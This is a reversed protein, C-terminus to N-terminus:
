VRNGHSAIQIVRQEYVGPGEPTINLITGINGVLQYLDTTKECFLANLGPLPGTLIDATSGPAILTGLPKQTVWRAGMEFLVWASNMSKESVIGLFFKAGM